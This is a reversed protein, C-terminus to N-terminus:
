QGQPAANRAPLGRESMLEIARDIPIHVLGERQDVWGYSTLYDAEDRRMQELDVNPNPQLAPAPAPLAAEKALPSASTDMGTERESFYSFLIAMLTMAAAVFIALAAAFRFIPRTSADSKEHGHNGAPSGHASM